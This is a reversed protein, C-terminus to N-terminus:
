SNTICATAPLARYCRYTHPLSERCRSVLGLDVSRELVLQPLTGGAIATMMRKRTSSRPMELESFDDSEDGLSLADLCVDGQKTEVM